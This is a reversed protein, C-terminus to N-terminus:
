PFKLNHYDLGFEPSTRTGTIKIPLVTGAGDKAFFPDALKLLKSKFGTTMQSLHADLKAKGHLDINEAQLGYTGDLLIHAGPVSFRFDTLTLTGARLAFHTSLDSTIATDDAAKQAETVQGRSRRSIAELKSQINPDTFHAGVVVFQGDLILKSMVDQHGPPLVFETNFRTPGTMVPKDTKVALRMLDEIRGTKTEVHLTVTKGKVGPQGAITGRCILDTELFRAEVPELSTDGKTGDVIAHFTTTLRVKYAGTKVEFDPTDTTGDVVIHNLAGSYRGISSLIGSIGTFVSLDAHAFTYDGSVPTAGLDNKQWPGFSGTSEIVGPPKANTLAAVFAMPQNLGVSTMRLKQIDFEMPEKGEQRPLIKLVTGDAVLEGIEFPFHDASGPQKPPKATVPPQNAPESPNAKKFGPPVQIVLGELRVDRVLHNAAGIMTAFDADATFREITILPPVDSRHKPRVTLGHGEIHPSPLLQIDLKDLKVDSDFREAVVKEVRAKVTPGMRFNLWFLVLMLGAGLGALMALAITLNRHSHFFAMRQLRAAGDLAEGEDRM